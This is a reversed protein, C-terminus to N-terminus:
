CCACVQLDALRDTTHELDFVLPMSAQISTEPLRRKLGLGRQILATFTKSASVGQLRLTSVGVYSDLPQSSLPTCFCSAASGHSATGGFLPEDNNSPPALSVAQLQNSVFDPLSPHDLLSFLPKCSDALSLSPIPIDQISDKFLASLQSLPSAAPLSTNPLVEQEAALSPSTSFAGFDDGGADGTTAIAAM